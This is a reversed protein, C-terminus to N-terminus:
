NEVFSTFVEWDITFTFTKHLTSEIDHKATWSQNEKQLSFIKWPKNFNQTFAVKSDFASKKKKKESLM